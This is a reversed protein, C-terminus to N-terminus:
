RSSESRPMIRLGGMRRLSMAAAMPVFPKRISRDHGQVHVAMVGGSDTRLLEGFQMRPIDLNLLSVINTIVGIPEIRRIARHEAKRFPRRLLGYFVYMLFCM